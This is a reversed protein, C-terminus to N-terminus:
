GYTLTQARYLRSSQQHMYDTLTTMAGTGPVVNHSVYVYGEEDPRCSVCMLPKRCHGCGRRAQDQTGYQVLHWGRLHLCRDTQPEVTSSGSEEYRLNLAGEAQVAM